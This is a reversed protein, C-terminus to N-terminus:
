FSARWSLSLTRGIGAFFTDNRQGTEVQSFYTVYDENFLNDIGLGFRGLGAEWNVIADFLTFGDFDANTPAGPGSFTRDEFHSAQVRLSLRDSLNGQFYINLRDPAINLGDLDSDVRGDANTDVRGDTRAYNGGVSINRNVAYDFSLEFGDIETRQRLVEFIGSDNLRLRSGNDAQSEFYAARARFIGNDFELGLEQNDTVIPEVRVLTSVSQGPVSVGRLVRGVDPMTFGENFSAYASWDGAFDWIIGANLLTESFEPSGGEVFTSNAAAITTFDDVELTADEYRLGGVVNISDTASWTGQVFPALTEFRTEPVWKRGSRALVQASEDRFFDLGLAFNSDREDLPRSWTMKLGNKDSVVASQDLFPDGNPTLRFFGGFTGGEFLGDFSQDFLQASFSGGFLREHRFTLSATTVENRAPDGVDESPDGAVTGSLIGADRDGAVARFDGNRELDFDTAMFTLDADSNIQWAAKVFLSVTTSDMIDGQTPYLGVADGNADFFLGREFLSAGFSFEFDGFRRGTIASVKYGFGDSDLDDPATFRTNLTTEWDGSSSPSRTLMSIVGGTAGVGQIANSGNIVEIREIFDLDIFHGDRQGDRLANHQPVGDVLYLPNRGRLSEARGTLKQLSPGFGPVTNELVSALDDNLLQQLEIEEKEIVTVTGPIASAPQEIRAASVIIRDRESSEEEEVDQAFTMSASLGIFASVLSLSLKHM